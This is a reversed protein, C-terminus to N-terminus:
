KKSSLNGKRVDFHPFEQLISYERFIGAVKRSLYTLHLNSHAMSIYLSAMLLKINIRVSSLKQGDLSFFTRRQLFITNNM